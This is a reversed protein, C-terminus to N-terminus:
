QCAVNIGWCNLRGNDATPFVDLVDITWTGAAADGVYDSLGGPGDISLTNDFNGIIDDASSGTENHLTVSTGGPSIVSVILDGIWTHTIDVDITINAVNCATGFTLTRVAHPSGNTISVGPCGSATVVPTCVSPTGSCAFGAEVDCSADCGDTATTNEDDCGEGLTEDVVGDGCHLICVSPQGPCKYGPEVVCTTDCGDGAIFNGDDCSEGREPDIIGDSCHRVCTSPSSRCTYGPEVLCTASCGDDAMTNDDDCTEGLAPSITGNGCHPVCVSPAGTCIHGVEVSCASSCGDGNATGDDDCTEGVASDVVGDGCSAACACDTPCSACTEGVLIDCVGTGGCVPAPTINLTWCDIVGSDPTWTDSAFLTWTGNTQGGAFSLMTGPGDVPLTRDYNGIINDSSEALDPAHLTVSTGGPATLRLTLDGVYTHTIDIDVDVTAIAYAETVTVTDSVGSPAMGDPISLPPTPCSSYRLGPRCISPEGSCITSPEVACDASCGDGSASNYDDCAEYSDLLGDGCRPGCLSPEGECKYGSEVVCDRTCGDDGVLNGDDCQEGQSSQTSGDGCNTCPCDQPCSACTEIPVECALNPCRAAPSVGVTLKYSGCAGNAGDLYVYYLGATLSTQIHSAGNAVLCDDNCVRVLGPPSASDTGTEMIYLVTDFSSGETSIDVGSDVPLALFFVADPSGDGSFACRSELDAVRCDTAAQATCSPCAGGACDGLGTCGSQVMTNPFSFDDTLGCTSGTFVGGRSINGSETPVDLTMPTIHVELDYPGCTGTESELAGFYDGEPLGCLLLTDAAVGETCALASTTGAPRACVDANPLQLSESGCVSSVRLSTNISSASSDLSVIYFSSTPSADQLRFYFFDDPAGGANPARCADGGPACDGPINDATDCTDGSTIGGSSLDAASACIDELCSAGDCTCRNTTCCARDSILGSSDCTIRANCLLTLDAACTISGPSCDNCQQRIASCGHACGNYSTLGCAADCTVEQTADLCHTGASACTVLCRDGAEDCTELTCPNTDVCTEIDGPECSGGNCTEGSTCFAGDDCPTGDGLLDHQCADAAQDCSDTTCSNGDDCASIPAGRCEFCRGADSNCGYPCPTRRTADTVPDCGVLVDEECYDGGAAECIRLVVEASTNADEPLAVRVHGRAVPAGGSMGLVTVDATVGDWAPPFLLNVTEIDGAQGAPAQTAARVPEKGSAQVEVEFAAINQGEALVSTSVITLSLSPGSESAVLSCAAGALLSLLAIRHTWAGLARAHM